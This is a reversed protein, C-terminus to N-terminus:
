RDALASGFFPGVSFKEEHFLTGDSSNKSKRSEKKQWDNFNPLYPGSIYRLKTGWYIIKCM